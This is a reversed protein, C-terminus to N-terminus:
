LIQSLVTHLYRSKVCFLFIKSLVARLCRNKVFFICFIVCFTLNRGDLRLMRTWLRLLFLGATEQAGIRVCISLCISKQEENVEQITKILM